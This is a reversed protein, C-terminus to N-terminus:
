PQLLPPHRIQPIVTLECYYGRRKYVVKLISHSPPMQEFTWNTKVMCGGTCHALNVVCERRSDHSGLLVAANSTM